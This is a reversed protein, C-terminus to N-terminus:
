ALPKLGFGLEIRNKFEFPVGLADGICLGFLGDLVKNESM